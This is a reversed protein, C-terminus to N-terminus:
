EWQPAPMVQFCNRDIKFGCILLASTRACYPQSPNFTALHDPTFMAENTRFLHSEIHVINANM